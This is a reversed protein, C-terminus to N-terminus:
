GVMERLASPPLARTRYVVDPLVWYLLHKFFGPHRAAKIKTISRGVFIGAAVGLFLSLGTGRVMGVFICFAFPIAVDLEWLGLKWPDDLRRLITSEGNM